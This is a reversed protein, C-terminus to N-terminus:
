LNVAVVPKQVMQHLEGMQTLCLYAVEFLLSYAHVSRLGSEQCM